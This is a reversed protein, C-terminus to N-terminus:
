FNLCSCNKKKILSCINDIYENIINNDLLYKKVQEDNMYVGQLEQLDMSDDQAPQPV